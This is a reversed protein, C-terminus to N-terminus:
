AVRPRISRNIEAGRTRQEVALDYGTQLNMWSQADTGFYRALRLATDATIGREGALIATIRNPPVGIDRALRYPTIGLPDLWETALIRGPHIPAARRVKKDALDAFDVRGAEVDERRITM